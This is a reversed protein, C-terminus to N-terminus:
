HGDVMLCRKREMALAISMRATCYYMQMYHCGFVSFLRRIAM